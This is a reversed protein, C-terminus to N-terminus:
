DKAVLIIEIKMEGTEDDKMTKISHLVSLPHIVTVGEQEVTFYESTVKRLTGLNTAKGVYQLMVEKMTGQTQSPPAVEKKAAEKKQAFATSTCVTALMAGVFLISLIRIM